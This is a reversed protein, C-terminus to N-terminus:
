HASQILEFWWRLDFVVKLESKTLKDDSNRDLQRFKRELAEKASQVGFEAKFEKKMKENLIKKERGPCKEVKRYPILDYFIRKM